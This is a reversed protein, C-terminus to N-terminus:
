VVYAIEIDLNRGLAREAYLEPSPELEDSEDVVFCRQVTVGGWAGAGINDVATRVKDGLDITTLYSLSWCTLRFRAVLLGGSGGHTKLEDTRVRAFAIYPEEASNPVVMTYMRGSIVAAVAATNKVKNYFESEMSM